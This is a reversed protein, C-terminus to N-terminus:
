EREDEQVDLLRALAGENVGAKRVYTTREVDFVESPDIDASEVVEEVKESDVGMVEQPSVGATALATLVTSEDRLTRRERTSRAVEGCESSLTGDAPVQPLLADRVQKRATGAAGELESFLTYLDVLDRDSADDLTTLDRRELLEALARAVAVFEDDLEVPDEDRGHGAPGSDDGRGGAESESDIAERESGVGERKSGVGERKSGAAEGTEAEASRDAEVFERAGDYPLVAWDHDGDHTSSVHTAVLAPADSYSCAEVPCEVEQSADM